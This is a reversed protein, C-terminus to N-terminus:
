TAAVVQNLKQHEIRGGASVLVIVSVIMMLHKTGGTLKSVVVSYYVLQQYWGVHHQHM